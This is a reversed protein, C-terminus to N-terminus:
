LSIIKPTDFVLFHSSKDGQGPFSSWIFSIKNKLITDNPHEKLKNQDQLKANSSLALHRTIQSWPYKFIDFLLNKYQHLVIQSQFVIAEKIDM